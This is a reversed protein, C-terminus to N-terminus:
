KMEMGKVPIPAAKESGTEPSKAERWISDSNQPFNKTHPDDVNTEM